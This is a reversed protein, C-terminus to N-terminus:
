MCLVITIILINSCMYKLHVTYTYDLQEVHVVRKVENSTTTLLIDEGVLMCM